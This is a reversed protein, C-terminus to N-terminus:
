MVREFRQKIHEMNCCNTATHQTESSNQTANIGCEEKIIQIATDMYCTDCNGSDCMGDKPCDGTEEYERLRELRELAEEVSIQKELAECAVICAENVAELEKERSIAGAHYRIENLALLTTDPHLIKHAQESSMLKVKKWHKKTEEKTLFLNKGIYNSWEGGWITFTSGDGFVLRVFLKTSEIKEILHPETHRPCREDEEYLVYVTDGAKCPIKLRSILEKQLRVVEELAKIVEEQADIVNDQADILQQIKEPEGIEEYAALKEMAEKLLAKDKIVAVGNHYETFRSM